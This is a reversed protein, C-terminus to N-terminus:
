LLEERLIQLNKQLMKTLHSEEELGVLSEDMFMRESAEGNELKKLFSSTTIGKRDDDGRKSFQSM